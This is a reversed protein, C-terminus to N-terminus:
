KSKKGSDTLELQYNDSKSKETKNDADVTIDTFNESGSIVLTGAGAEVDFATLTAADIVLEQQSHHNAYSPNAVVICGSLLTVSTFFLLSSALKMSKNGKLFV